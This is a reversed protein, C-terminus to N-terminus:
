PFYEIFLFKNPSDTIVSKKRLEHVQWILAKM